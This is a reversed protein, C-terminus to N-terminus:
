FRRGIVLVDDVQEIDGRWADLTGELVEKQKEMPLDQLALVLEKMPKSKFKKGGQGGFQDAYGDSFFYIVDGKRVEIDVTTFKKAVDKSRGIPFRDAKIEELEGDRVLWLPNYAGSFQLIGTKRNYCTLSLDMGDQIAGGEADQRQLSATVEHNLRDLIDSPKYVQQEKVIKNLSNYGIISM